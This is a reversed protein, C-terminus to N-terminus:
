AGKVRRVNVARLGRLGKKEIDFEVPDGHRLRTISVDRVGSKHFFIDKGDEATIFGYGKDKIVTKIRGRPMVVGWVSGYPCLYSSRGFVM